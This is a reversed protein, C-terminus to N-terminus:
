RFLSFRGLEVGVDVCSREEETAAGLREELLRDVRHLRTEITVLLVSELEALEAQRRRVEALQGQADRRITCCSRLEADIDGLPRPSPKPM